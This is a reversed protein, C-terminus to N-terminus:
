VKTITVKQWQPRARNKVVKLETEQRWKVQQQYMTEENIRIDQRETRKWTKLHTIESNLQDIEARMIKIKTHLQKESM